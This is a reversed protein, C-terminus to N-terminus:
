TSSSALYPVQGNIGLVRSQCWKTPWRCTVKRSSQVPPMIQILIRLLKRTTSIVLINWICWLFDFLLLVTFIVTIAVGVQADQATILRAERGGEKEKEKKNQRKGERKEKRERLKM